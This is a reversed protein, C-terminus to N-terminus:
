LEFRLDGRLHDAHGLIISKNEPIIKADVIGPIRVDAPHITM